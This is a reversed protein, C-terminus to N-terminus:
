ILTFFIEHHLFLINLTFVKNNTTIQLTNTKFNQLLLYCNIVEDTMSYCFIVVLLMKECTSYM